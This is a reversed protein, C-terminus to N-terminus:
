CVLLLLDGASRSTTETNIVVSLNQFTGVNQVNILTEWIDRPDM